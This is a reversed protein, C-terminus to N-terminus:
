FVGEFVSLPTFIMIPIRVFLTALAMRYHGITKIKYKFIGTYNEIRLMKKIRARARSVYMINEVNNIITRLDNVSLRM